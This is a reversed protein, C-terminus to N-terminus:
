LIYNNFGVQVCVILFLKVVNVILVHVVTCVQLAVHVCKCEGKWLIVSCMWSPHTIYPVHLNICTHYSEGSLRSQVQM